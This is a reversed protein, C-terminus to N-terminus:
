RHERFLAHDRDPLIGREVDHTQHTAADEGAGAGDEIAGLDRRSRAHRDPTAAADPEVRDLSGAQHAGCLDDGDVRHLLLEGPGLLEARRGSRLPTTYHFLTSTPPEPTM